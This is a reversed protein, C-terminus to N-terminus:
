TKFQIGNQCNKSACDDRCTLRSLWHTIGNEYTQLSGELAVDGIDGKDSMDGINGKDGKAKDGRDGM